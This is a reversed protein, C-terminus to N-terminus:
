LVILNGSADYLVNAEEEPKFYRNYVPYDEIKSTNSLLINNCISNFKEALEGDSISNFVEEIREKIINRERYPLELINTLPHKGFDNYVVIKVKDLKNRLAKLEEETEVKVPDTFPM